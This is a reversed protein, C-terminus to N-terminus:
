CRLLEGMESRRRDIPLARLNTFAPHDKPASQINDQGQHGIIDAEM